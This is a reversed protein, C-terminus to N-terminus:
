IAAATVYKQIIHIFPRIYKQHFAMIEVVKADEPRLYPHGCTDGNSAWCSIGINVMVPLAIEPLAKNSSRLYLMHRVADFWAESGDPWHYRLLPQRLDKVKLKQMTSIINHEPAPGNVPIFEVKNQSFILEHRNVEFNGNDNIAIHKIKSVMDYAASSNSYVNTSMLTMSRINDLQTRQLGPPAATLERSYVNLSYIGNATEFLFSKDNISFETRFIKGISTEQILKITVPHSSLQRTKKDLHCIIFAKTHRDRFQIFFNNEDHGYNYVSMYAEPFLSMMELAGKHQNQWYVLQRQDTICIGSHDKSAIGNYGYNRRAPLLLPFPVHELFLPIDLMTPTGRFSHTLPQKKARPPPPELNIRATSLLKRHGSLYRYLHVTADREITVLFGNHPRLSAFAHQFDTEHFLEESTILFFEHDNSLTHLENFALLANASRLAPSLVHMSKVVDKKNTLDITKCQDGALAYSTITAQQKKDVISALTTSVALMHPTGWMKISKDILIFRHTHLKDPIEERRLYLAENNALRAMLVDDENALESLLLKDITGKNTIDSVGGITRDGARNTHMPLHIAAMLRQTLLAIYATNDDEALEELLDKEGAQPPLPLAEPMEVPALPPPPTAPTKIRTELEQELVDTYPYKHLIRSMIRLDTNAQTNSWNNDDIRPACYDEAPLKQFIAIMEKGSGNALALPIQEFLCNFLITRKDEHWYQRSLPYLLDVFSSLLNSDDTLDEPNSRYLWSEPNIMARWLEQKLVDPTIGERPRQTDVKGIMLIILLVSLPPTTAYEQSLLGILEEKFCITNGKAFEIVTGDETWHWFYDKPASFYAITRDHLNEM